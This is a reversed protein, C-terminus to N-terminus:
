VAEAKGYLSLWHDVSARLKVVLDLAKDSDPILNNDLLTTLDSVLGALSRGSLHEQETEINKAEAELWQRGRSEAVHAIPAKLVVPKIDNPHLWHGREEIAKELQPTQIAVIKEIEEASFNQRKLQMAARIREHYSLPHGHISNLRVAEAFWHNEPAKTLMAPIKPRHAKKFAEFRHRGDIVIYRGDRKGVIIPPFQAGINLASVYRQVDRWALINRPYYLEDVLISETSIYM